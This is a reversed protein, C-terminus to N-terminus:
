LAVVKDMFRTFASQGAADPKFVATNELIQECIRGVERMVAAQASGEDNDTGYENILREIMDIHVRMDPATSEKSFQKGCLYQAAEWLQRKLRGPLIFFGMAEILGISESKINHYMSHAHFIGGPHCSDTRNNRLILEVVYEGDAFRAVPTVANHRADTYALIGASEDTYDQWLGIIQGALESVRKRDKGAIRIVNNYFDAASVRLDRYNVCQYFQRDGASFLPLKKLGGQFHDHALISGGVIPLSANCGIFYFPFLDIFDLLKDITGPVVNMKTHTGNIAILHHDYYVFPSFQIFWEEGGLTIPITRLTNRPPQRLNGFLGTNERCLACKPYGTAPVSLLKATEKNDKEPKSLNITLELRGKTEEAKRYMNKSVASLKIYNSKISYDYLWCCARYKDPFSDFRRVVESPKLCLLGLIRTEFLEAEAAGDKIIGNVVAYEIIPATLADPASLAVFEKDPSIDDPYETVGLAHMVANRCYIVDLEDLELNKVAYYLLNEIARSIM